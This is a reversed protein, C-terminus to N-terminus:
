VLSIRGVGGDFKKWFGMVFIYLSGSIKTRFLPPHHSNPIRIRTELLMIYVELFLFRCYMSNILIKQFSIKSIPRIHEFFYFGSIRMNLLICSSIQHSRSSVTKIYLSIKMDHAEKSILGLGFGFELFDSLLFFSCIV